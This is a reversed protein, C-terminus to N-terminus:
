WAGAVLADLEKIMRERKKGTVLGRGVESQLERIRKSKGIGVSQLVM